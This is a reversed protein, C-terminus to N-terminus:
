ERTTFINGLCGEWSYWSLTGAPPTSWRTIAERPPAEYWSNTWINWGREWRISYTTTIRSFWVYNIKIFTEFDTQFVGARETRGSITVNSNVYTFYFEQGFFGGGSIVPRFRTVIKGNSDVGWFTANIVNANRNSIRLSSPPPRMITTPLSGDGKILSNLYNSNVTTPFEIIFGGDKFDSRALEVFRRRDGGRAFGMMIVEVVNDFDSANEVKAEIGTVVNAYDPMEINNDCATLM